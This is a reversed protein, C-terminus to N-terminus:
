ELIPVFIYKNHLVITGDIETLYTRVGQIVRGSIYDLKRDPHELVPYSVGSQYAYWAYAIRLQKGIDETPTRWNKLFHTVYGTGATVYLSTFGGGGLEIPAALVARSTNRNFGCKAYFKPMCAQKIKKLQQKSLFSQPLTYEIAPKWVSRYLMKNEARTGGCQAIVDGINSAKKLTRGFETKGNDRPGKAHGLNIKTQYINKSHIPILDGQNNTLTISDGSSHRMKPIGSDDFYYYMVHYGCKSLELKGGSCWRLDHWLQADDKMKVLLQQLTDNPNGGTICSSEDVFGEM